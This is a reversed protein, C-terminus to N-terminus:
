GEDSGEPGIAIGDAHVGGYGPREAPDWTGAAQLQEVRAEDHAAMITLLEMMGEPVTTDRGWTEVFGLQGGAARVRGTQEQLIALNRAIRLADVAVILKGRCNAVAGDFGRGARPAGIDEAWSTIEHGTAAAWEEIRRKQLDGVLSSAASGVRIYGIVPPNTTM